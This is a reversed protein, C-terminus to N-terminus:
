PVLLSLNATIYANKVFFYSQIARICGFEPEITTSDQM